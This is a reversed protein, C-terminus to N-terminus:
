WRWRIKKLGFKELHSNKIWVGQFEGYHAITPHLVLELTEKEGNEKESFTQSIVPVTKEKLLVEFEKVLNRPKKKASRQKQSRYARRVFV